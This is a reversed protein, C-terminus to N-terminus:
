QIWFGAVQDGSLVLKAIFQDEGIKPTIKWLYVKHGQQTLDTLYDVGYGDKFLPQLQKVVGAFVAKGMGKKFTEDGLSQFGEFDDEVASKMLTALSRSAVEPPDAAFAPLGFLILLTLILFPKM